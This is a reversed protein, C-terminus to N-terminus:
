ANSQNLLPRRSEALSANEPCLLIRDGVCTGTIKLTTAPLELAGEARFVPRSLRNPALSHHLALVRGSSSLFAVDISYVELHQNRLASELHRAADRSYYVLLVKRDLTPESSDVM